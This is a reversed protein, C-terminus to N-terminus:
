RVRLMIEDIYRGSLVDKEEPKGLNEEVGLVRCSSIGFVPTGLNLEGFLGGRLASVIEDGERYNSDKAYEKGLSLIGDVLIAAYHRIELLRQAEILKTPVDVREQERM